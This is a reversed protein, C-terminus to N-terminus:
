FALALLVLAALLAALPSHRPSPSPEHGEVFAATHTCLVGASCKKGRDLARLAAVLAHAHAEDLVYLDIQTVRGQADAALVPVLHTAAGPVLSEVTRALAATDVAARATPPVRVVVRTRRAVAIDMDAAVRTSPAYLTARRPADLLAYRPPALPALAEIDALATGPAATLAAAVPAGVRVTCLAPALDLASTWRLAAGLEKAGDNLLTDARDGTDVTHYLTTTANRALLVVETCNACADRLGFLARAAPNPPWFAHAEATGLVRGLAVANAASHTQPAFGYARTANVTGKNVSNSVAVTVTAASDASVCCLGCADGSLVHVHGGNASDAIDVAVAAGDYARFFGVLGAVYANYRGQVEGRNACGTIRYATRTAPREYGVLGGGARTAEVRGTNTCRALVVTVNRADYQGGVLGGIEENGVVRGSNASGSIAVHTDYNQELSGVLGGVLNYDGVIDGDNACDELLISTNKNLGVYGALGGVHMDAVVRGRNTCNRLALTARDLKMVRGILGGTNGSNRNTCTVDGENVCHALSVVCDAVSTVNGVLGGVCMYGSVNARNVVREVHVSGRVIAVLAGGYRSAFSCTEDIVLNKVTANEVGCLLGTHQYSRTSRSMHLHRIRHGSGDFVGSYPFCSNNFYGLPFIDFGTFDLDETLTIDLTMNSRSLESTANLTDVLEQASSVYVHGTGQAM